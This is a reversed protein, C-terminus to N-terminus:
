IQLRPNGDPEESMAFLCEPEWKPEAPPSDVLAALAPTMEFYEVLPPVDTSYMGTFHAAAGTPVPIVVSPDIRRKALRELEPTWECHPPQERMWFLQKAGGDKRAQALMVRVERVQREFLIEAHTATGNCLTCEMPRAGPLLHFGNQCWRFEGPAIYDEPFHEVTKNVGFLTEM